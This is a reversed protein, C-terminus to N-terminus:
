EFRWEYLSGNTVYIKLRCNQGALESISNSDWTAENDIANVVIETSDDKTFGAIPNGTLANIIEIKTSASTNVILKTTGYPIHVRSTLVFGETGGAIYRSMRGATMRQVFQQRVDELSSFNQSPDPGQGEYHGNMRNSGSLFMTGDNELVVGGPYCQGVESVGPNTHCTGTDIRLFPTLDHAPETLDPITWNIGNRSYAYVGYIPGTTRNQPVRRKPVRKDDRFFVPMVCIYIGKYMVPRAWYIDPRVKANNMNAPVYGTGTDFNRCADSVLSWFNSSDAESGYNWANSSRPDHVTNWSGSWVDPFTNWQRSENRVTRRTDEFPRPPADAAEGRIRGFCVWKNINEDYLITGPSDDGPLGSAIAVPNTFSLGDSSTHIWWASSGGWKSLSKYRQSPQANVDYYFNYVSGRFQNAGPPTQMSILNSQANNVLDPFLNNRVKVWTEGNDTSKQLATARINYGTGGWFRMAHYYRLHGEHDRIITSWDGGVARGEWAEDGEHVETDNVVASGKSVHVIKTDGSGSGFQRLGFTLGSVQSELQRDMPLYVGLRLRESARGQIINSPDSTGSENFARIRINQLSSQNPQGTIKLPSTTGTVAQWAGSDIQYQYGTVESAPQTFYVFIETNGENASTIFPADPIGSGSLSRVLGPALLLQPFFRM